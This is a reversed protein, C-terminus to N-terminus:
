IIVSRIGNRVNLGFQRSTCKEAIQKRESRLRVCRGVQGSAAMVMEWHFFPHREAARESAVVAELKGARIEVGSPVLSIAWAHFHLSTEELVDRRQDLSYCPTNILTTM